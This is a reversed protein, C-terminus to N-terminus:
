LYTGHTESDVTEPKPEETRGDKTLREVIADAIRDIFSDGDFPAVQEQLDMFASNRQDLSEQLSSPLLDQHRGVQDGISTSMSALLGAQRQLANVNDVVAQRMQVVFDKEQQLRMEIERRARNVNEAAMQGMQVALARRQQLLVEMERRARNVYDAAVQGMQVALARKQQEAKAITRFNEEYPTM